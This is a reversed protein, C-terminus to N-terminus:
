HEHRTSRYIELDPGSPATRTLWRCPPLPVDICCIHIPGTLAIPELSCLLRVLREGSFPCYLFFVTGGALAGAVQTGDGEFFSVRSLKLREALESATAVLSGQLEIGLVAAGTLLHVLAAARGVGSGIDVFVDTAQMPVHKTLRLLADVSSPLYPVCGSPLNPEDDPLANLGFVFDVWADRSLPPVDTLAARFQAPDCRGTQIRARIRDASDRLHEEM